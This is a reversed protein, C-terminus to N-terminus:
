QLRAHAAWNWGWHAELDKGDFARASNISTIQAWRDFDARPLVTVTGRMKYHNAGCHQACIIEFVGTERPQFWMRTVTGPIADVKMRMNPVNFGHIVDTATIQFIVPVGQPVVLDNLVVIDDPTNFSGDPGAYRADWAWQHANIQIRVAGPTAEARAFDFFTGFMFRTSRYLLDGDVVVFILAAVLATWRWSKFDAGHDYLAKHEPGHRVVSWLMWLVMLIFLISVAITTSRIMEDIQWGSESADRPLGVAVFPNSIWSLLLPLSASM